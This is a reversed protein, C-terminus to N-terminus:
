PFRGFLALRGFGAAFGITRIAQLLKLLLELFDAVLASRKVLGLFFCNTNLTREIRSGNASQTGASRRISRGLRDFRHILLQGNQHALGLM